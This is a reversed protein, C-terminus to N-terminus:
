NRLDCFVEISELHKVSLGHLSNPTIMLWTGCELSYLWDNAAKEYKLDDDLWVLKHGERDEKEWYERLAVLKWWADNRGYPYLEYHTQGVVPWDTAAFGLDLALVSPAQDVWSTLWVIEVDPREALSELRRLLQPSYTIRFGRDFGAPVVRKQDWETWGTNQKPFGMSVANIVGDVDLFITTKSM